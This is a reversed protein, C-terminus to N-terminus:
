ELIKTFLEQYQEIIKKSSFKVKVSNSILLPELKLLNVVGTNLTDKFDNENKVLIGNVNEDIIEKTGGPSDFAIIPTGVLCSELVANPFGEVYSGQLFIHNSRLEDLVNFTFPIFSIKNEIKLEKIVELLHNKLIGEGIITYHYDEISSGALCRLVREHGKEESLRGVTVFRILEPFGNISEKVMTPETIPNNIIILKKKSIKYNENLDILMDKSQCIICSFNGYVQKSLFNLINNKKDFAGMISLVSAERAIFKIKRFFFAMIGSFINLHVISSLVIQPRFAVITQMLPFVSTFLRKKNLFKVEVGSYDYVSEEKSGIVLLRVNFLESDLNKALFSLVREAGGAKLSPLLLLVKKKHSVTKKFM